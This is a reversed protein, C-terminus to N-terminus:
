SEHLLSNFVNAFYFILALIMDNMFIHKNELCSFMLGYSEEACNYLGGAHVSLMFDLILGELKLFFIVTTSVEIADMLLLSPGRINVQQPRTNDEVQCM